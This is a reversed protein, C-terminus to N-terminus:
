AARLGGGNVIAIDAELDTRLLDAIFNSLATEESRVRSFRCDLDVDSYFIVKSLKKNIEEATEKVFDLIDPNEPFRQTINVREVIFMRKTAESYFLEIDNSPDILKHKSGVEKAKADFKKKYAEFDSKEVDFLMSLNTFCEFDTGSKVILVNTKDNLSRVYGHDHGGFAIDVVSHDNQEAM